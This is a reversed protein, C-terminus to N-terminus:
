VAAAASAADEGSSAADDGSETAAVIDCNYNLPLTFLNTEDGSIHITTTLKDYCEVEVTVTYDGEELSIVPANGDGDTVLDISKTGSLGAQDIHIKASRIAKFTKKNVVHLALDGLPRARQQAPGGAALAGSTVESSSSADYAPSAAESASAASADGSGQAEGDASTIADEAARPPVEAVGLTRLWDHQDQNPM